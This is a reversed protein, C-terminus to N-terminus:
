AAGKPTAYAAQCGKRAGGPRGAALMDKHHTVGGGKGASVHESLAQVQQLHLGFIPRQILLALQAQGDPGGQYVSAAQCCKM